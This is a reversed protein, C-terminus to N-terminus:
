SQRRPLSSASFTWSRNLTFTCSLTGGTALLQAPLYHLGAAVHFLWLLSANLALGLLAVTGFKPLAEAHSKSSRFTFSRNLAYNVLASIAFGITSAAVADALATEVLAILIAYQLATAVGGILSFRVFQDASSNGGKM